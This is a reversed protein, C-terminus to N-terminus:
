RTMIQLMLFCRTQTSVWPQFPGAKWHKAVLSLDTRGAALPTHSSLPSLAGLELLLSPPPFTNIHMHQGKEAPSSSGDTSISRPNLDTGGWQSARFCSPLQLLLSESQPVQIPPLFDQVMYKADNKCWRLQLLVFTTYYNYYNQIGSQETSGGQDPVQQFPQCQQGGTVQLGVSLCKRKWQFQAQIWHTWDM